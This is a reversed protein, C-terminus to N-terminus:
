SKEFERKIMGAEKELWQNEEVNYEGGHATTGGYSAGKQDLHLNVESSYPGIMKVYIHFRPFDASGVHKVFSLEGVREDRRLFAYGARRLINLPSDNTKEFILKMQKNYLVFYGEKSPYKTLGWV